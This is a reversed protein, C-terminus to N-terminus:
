SCTGLIQWVDITANHPVPVTLAVVPGSGDGTKVHNVFVKIESGPVFQTLVVQTDGDQVPAVQPAPLASCPQVSGGGPKSPGDSPCLEQTGTFNEFASLPPSVGVRCKGGWCAFTGMMIGNRSVTFKAGDSITNVVIETAGQYMPDFGPPPLPLPPPQVIQELSPPSPDNCLSAWARVHQGTDFAPNINVGQPNNAGSVSGVQNGDATVRVDCGVLLNGVGTRVGCKYL